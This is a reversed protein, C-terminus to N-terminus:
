VGHLVIRNGRRTWRGANRSGIGVVGGPGSMARPQGGRGNAAVLLGPAYSQAATIAAQRAAEFPNASLGSASMNQVASGGFQVFRKAVEFERDEGSLGELELGLLNGAWSAVKGGIDAGTQGGFYSGVNTGIAPLVQKAAGKLVSGIAKGQPSRIFNGAVQGAKRVLNGLFRDLEQENSVELLESALEMVEAENFPGAKAGGFEAESYEQYEFSEPSVAEGAIPFAEYQATVPAEFRIRDIDHM